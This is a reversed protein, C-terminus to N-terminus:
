SNPNQSLRELEAWRDYLAKVDGHAKGLEACAKALEAHDVIVHPDAARKALEEIRSEAALIRIPRM